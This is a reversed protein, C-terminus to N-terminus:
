FAGLLLKGLGFTFYGCIAALVAAEVRRSTTATVPEWGALRQEIRASPRGPHLVDVRCAPAQDLDGAISAGTSFPVFGSTPQVLLSPNRLM